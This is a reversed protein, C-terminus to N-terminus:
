FREGEKRGIEMAMKERQNIEGFGHGKEESKAGEGREKEREGSGRSKRELVEMSVRAPKESELSRLPPFLLLM